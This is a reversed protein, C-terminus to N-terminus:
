RPASYLRGRMVQDPVTIVVSRVFGYGAVYAPAKRRLKRLINEARREETEIWASPGTRSDVKLFANKEPKSGLVAQATVLTFVAASLQRATSSQPTLLIIDSPSMSARRVILAGSAKQPLSDIVAVLVPIRLQTAAQGSVASSWLVSLAAFVLAHRRATTLPRNASRAINEFMSAGFSFLHITTPNPIM